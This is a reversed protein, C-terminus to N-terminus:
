GARKKQPRQPSGHPGPDERLIIQLTERTETVVPLYLAEVPVSPRLNGLRDRAARILDGHAADYLDDRRMRYKRVGERFSQRM